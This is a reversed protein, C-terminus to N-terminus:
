LEKKMAYYTHGKPFNELTMWATFGNKEFFGKRWDFVYVAALYGENERAKQQAYEILRTGIGQNRYPEDVWLEIYCGGWSDVNCSCGAIMKGDADTIKCSVDSERCQDPVISDSYDAIGKRIVESDEKDGVKIECNIPEKSSVYERCPEDLRKVMAYFEHGRPSNKNTGIVKYGHKEYLPRAHFDATYLISIYCEKERALREYEQILKSGLGKQRYTEDVWLVNLYAIKWPYFKTICGAIVKDEEDTIKLIVTEEKEGEAPEVVSFNYEEIKEEIYDNDGEEYPKIEYEFENM